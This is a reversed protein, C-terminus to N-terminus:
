KLFGAKEIFNGAIWHSGQKNLAAMGLGRETVTPCADM